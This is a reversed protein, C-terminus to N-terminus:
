NINEKIFNESVKVFMPTIEHREKEPSEFKVNSVIENIYKQTNKWM